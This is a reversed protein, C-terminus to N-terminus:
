PTGPVAVPSEPGRGSEAGGTSIGSGSRWEFVSVDRDTWRLAAHELISQRIEEPVNNPNNFRGEDMALWVRRLSGVVSEFEEQSTLAPGASFPHRSLGGERDREFQDIEGNDLTFDIEGCGSYEAALPITAVVLDGGTRQERLFECAATWDTHRLGGYNQASLSSPSLGARFSPWILGLSLLFVVGLGVQTLVWRRGPAKVKDELWEGLHATESLFLNTVGVASILVVLPFIDYIYRPRQAEVALSHFLLPTAALVLVYLGKSTPRSLIQLSGIIFLVGIPLLGRSTLFDFYYQPTSGASGMWPPNFGIAGAVGELRGLAVLYVFSFLFGSGLLWLYRSRRLGRGGLTALDGATMLGAYAM